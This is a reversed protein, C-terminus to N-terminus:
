EHFEKRLCEHVQYYADKGRSLEIRNPGYIIFAPLSGIHFQKCIPSDWDIGEKGFRNVDLRRVAIEPRQKTLEALEQAVPGCAGCYESGFDFITYKGAVANTSLTIMQGPKDANIDFCDGDRMQAPTAHASIPRFVDGRPRLPSNWFIWFAVAVAVFMVIASGSM